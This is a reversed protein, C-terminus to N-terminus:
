TKAITCANGGRERATRVATEGRMLFSEPTDFEIASTVGVSVTIEHGEDFPYLEVARRIKEGVKQAGVIDTEPVVIVFEDDGIRAVQDSVRVTQRLVDAITMLVYDGSARGHAENLHSFGDVDLVIQSLAHGYRKSRAVEARLTYDFWPRGPLGTLDDFYGRPQAARAPPPTAPAMPAVQPGREVPVAAAAAAVFWALAAVAAALLVFWPLMGVPFSPRLIGWLVAAIAVITQISMAGILAGSIGRRVKEDAM